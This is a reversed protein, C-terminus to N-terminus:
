ELGDYEGFLKYLHEFNGRIAEVKDALVMRDETRLDEIVEELLRSVETQSYNFEGMSYYDIRYVIKDM